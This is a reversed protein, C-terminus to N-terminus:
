SRGRSMLLRIVKIGTLSHLITVVQPAAPKNEVVVRNVTTATITKRQQPSAAPTQAFTAVSYLGTLVVVPIVRTFLSTRNSTRM